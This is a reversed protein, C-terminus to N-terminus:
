LNQRQHTAEIVKVVQTVILSTASIQVIFEIDLLSKPTVIM